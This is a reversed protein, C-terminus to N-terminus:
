DKTLLGTVVMIYVVAFAVTLMAKSQHTVVFIAPVLVVPALLLVIGVWNYWRV